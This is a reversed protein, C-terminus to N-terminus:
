NMQQTLPNVIIFVVGHAPVTSSFGKQTIDEKATRINKVRAKLMAPYCTEEWSVHM